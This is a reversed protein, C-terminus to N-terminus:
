RTGQSAFNVRGGSYSVALYGDGAYLDLDWNRILVRLGINENDSPMYLTRSGSGLQNVDPLGNELGYEFKYNQGTKKLVEPQYVKTVGPLVIPKVGRPMNTDKELGPNVILLRSELDSNSLNLQDRNEKLSKLLAKAEKPNTGNTDYLILALDEWYDRPKPLKGQKLLQESQLPTIPWQNLSRLNPNQYIATILGLRKLIYLNPVEGSDQLPIEAATGQFLENSKRILEQGFKNYELLSSNEVADPFNNASVRTTPRVVDTTRESPLRDNKWREAAQILRKNAM